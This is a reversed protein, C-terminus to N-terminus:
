SFLIPPSLYNLTEFNSEWAVFAAGTLVFGMDAVLKAPRFAEGWVDLLASYFLESENSNRYIKTTINYDPIDLFGIPGIDSIPKLEGERSGWVTYINAMPSGRDAGVTMISTWYRKNNLTMDKMQYYYVYYTNSM